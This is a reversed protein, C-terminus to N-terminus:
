RQRIFFRIGKGAYVLLIISLIASLFNDLTLYKVIRFFSSQGEFTQKMLEPDLAPKADAPSDEEMGRRSDMRGLSSIAHSDSEVVGWSSLRAMLQDNLGVILSDRAFLGSQDITAVLWSELQKADQYTWVMEAYMDEGILARLEENLQDFADSGTPAHQNDRWALAWASNDNGVGPWQLTTLTPNQIPLFRNNSEAPKVAAPYARSASKESLAPRAPKNESVAEKPASPLEVPAAAPLPIPLPSGPIEAAKKVPLDDLESPPGDASNVIDQSFSLKFDDAWSM